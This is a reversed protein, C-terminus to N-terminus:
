RAAKTITKRITSACSRLPFSIPSTPIPRFRGAGSSFKTTRRLARPPRLEPSSFGTDAPTSASYPETDFTYFTGDTSYTPSFALGSFGGEGGTYLNIGANALNLFPTSSLAGNSSLIDVDGNRTTVFLRGTGDNASVLDQPAGQSGPITAFPSLTVTISGKTVPNTVAAVAPYTAFLFLALALAVRPRKM